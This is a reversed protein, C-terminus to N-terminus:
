RPSEPQYSHGARLDGIRALASGDLDLDLRRGGTPDCAPQFSRPEEPRADLGGAGTV